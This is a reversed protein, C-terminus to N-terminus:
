SYVKRKEIAIVYPPNNSRNAFRYLLTQFAAEPLAAAWRQVSEAEERGGDHGPYLVVTLIGGARLVSVAADLAPLTSEPRTIVTQDGGPLYGLNFMVAGVRGREDPPLAQELEAHSQLLLHLRPATAHLAAVREAARDLAEQQIDFAYVTGASGVAGCLFATDAGTGATADVAIEGPRLRETVCRHAFSLVSMFGM